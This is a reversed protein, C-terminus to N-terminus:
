ALNFFERKPIVGAAMFAGLEHVPVGGVAPQFARPAMSQAGASTPAVADSIRSSLPARSSFIQFGIEKTQPGQLGNFDWLAVL